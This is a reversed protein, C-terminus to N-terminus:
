GGGDSLDSQGSVKVSIHYLWTATHSHSVNKQYKSQEILTCDFRLKETGQSLMNRKGTIVHRIEQVLLQFLVFVCVYFEIYEIM